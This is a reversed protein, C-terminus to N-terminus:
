ESSVITKITLGHMDKIEAELVETVMRHQAVRTKGSFCSSEVQIHYMSGCGGSIDQVQVNTSHLSKELMSKIVQEKTNTSLGRVSTLVSLRSTRRTTRLWMSIRALSSSFELTSTIIFPIYIWRKTSLFLSGILPTQRIRNLWDSVHLSRDRKQNTRELNSSWDFHVWGSAGIQVGDIIM